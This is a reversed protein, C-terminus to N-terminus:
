VIAWLQAACLTRLWKKAPHTEQVAACAWFGADIIMAYEGFSFIGQDIRPKILLIQKTHECEVLSLKENAIFFLDLSKALVTHNIGFMKAKVQDWRTDVVTIVKAQNGLFCSSALIRPCRAFQVPLNATMGGDVLRYHQTHIPEFIGPIAISAMLADVIPWQRLPVAVGRDIDTAVICLDCRCDEIKRQGFLSTLFQQIKKGAILGNKAVVDLSFFRKPARKDAIQRMTVYNMGCAIAAAVVAGMSTGVCEHPLWLVWEAWSWVGLHSFWRAAGWGLVLSYPRTM